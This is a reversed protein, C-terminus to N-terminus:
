GLKALLKEILQQQREIVREHQEIVREHQEIVTAQREVLQELRDVKESLQQIAGIALMGIMPKDVALIGRQLTGYLLWRRRPDLPENVTLVRANLVSIVVVDRSENLDNIFRIYEGEKINVDSFLSLVSGTPEAHVREVYAMVDAVFEDNGQRVAEPLVEQVQQAIVGIKRGPDRVSDKMEYEYIQIRKVLELAKGTEVVEINKKIRHDSTAIFTSTSVVDGLAYLAYSAVSMAATNLYTTNYGFYTLSGSVTSAPNGITVVPMDGRLATYFNVVGHTVAGNNNKGGVLEMRASGATTDGQILRGSELYVSPATLNQGGKQNTVDGPKVYLVYRDISNDGTVDTSLITQPLRSVTLMGEPNTSGIGVRSQRSRVSGSTDLNRIYIAPSEGGSQIMLNRSSLETRIVADGSTSASSYDGIAGAVGCWLKGVANVAALHWYRASALNGSTLGYQDASGTVEMDKSDEGTTKTKVWFEVAGRSGADNVSRGSVQAQLIRGSAHTTVFQMGTGKTTADPAFTNVFRLLSATSAANGYIDLGYCRSGGAAPQNADTTGIGVYGSSNVSLATYYTNAPLTNRIYFNQSYDLFCGTGSKVLRMYSSVSNEGIFLSGNQILQNGSITLKEAPNTLGIGVRGTTTLFLTSLNGAMLGFNHQTTTGFLGLTNTIVSQLLKDGSSHTLGAFNVPTEVQFQHVPNTIGLGVKNGVVSLGNSLNILSGSLNILSGSLTLTGSNNQNERGGSSVISTDYYNNTGTGAGDSSHFLIQSFGTGSSIGSTLHIYNASTSNVAVKTGLVNASMYSTDFSGLVSLNSTPQTIGIGVKSSGGDNIVRMCEIPYSGHYSVYLGLASNFPTTTVLSLTTALGSSVWRDGPLYFDNNWPFTMATFSQNNFFNGASNRTLGILNADSSQVDGDVLSAINGTKISTSLTYTVQGFKQQNNSMPAPPLQNGEVDTLQLGYIQLFPGLQTNTPGSLQTFIFRYHSYPKSNTLPYQLFDELFRSSQSLQSTILYWKEGDLSGVLHFVHPVSTWRDPHTTACRISFSRLMVPTTMSVQIWEGLLYLTNGPEYSRDM